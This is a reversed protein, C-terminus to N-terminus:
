GNQKYKLFDTGTLPNKSQTGTIWKLIYGWEVWPVVVNTSEYSPWNLLLLFHKCRSLTYSPLHCRGSNPEHVLASGVVLGSSGPGKLENQHHAAQTMAKRLKCDHTSNYLVRISSSEKVPQHCGFTFMGTTQTETFSSTNHCALQSGRFCAPTKQQSWSCWLLLCTFLTIKKWREEDRSDLHHEQNSKLCFFLCVGLFCELFQCGYFYVM